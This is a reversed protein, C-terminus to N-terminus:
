ESRELEYFVNEFIEAIRAVNDKILPVYIKYSQKQKCDIYFLTKGDVNSVSFGVDRAFRVLRTAEDVPCEIVPNSTLYMFLRGGDIYLHIKLLARGFVFNFVDKFFMALSEVSIFVLRDESVESTIEVLGRFNDSVFKEMALVIKSANYFRKENLFSDAIAFNTGYFIEQNM